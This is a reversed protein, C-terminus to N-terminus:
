SKSVATAMERSRVRAPQLARPVRRNRASCLSCAAPRDMTEAAAAARDMAMVRLVSMWSAM